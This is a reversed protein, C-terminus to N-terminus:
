GREVGEVEGREVGEVEGREVGEVVREGCEGSGERWM